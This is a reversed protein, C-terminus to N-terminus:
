QRPSAPSQGQLPARGQGSMFQPSQGQLSERRARGAKSKNWYFLGTVLAAILLVGVISGIVIGAIDGGSLKDTSNQNSGTGSDPPPPAARVTEGPSAPTPPPPANPPTSSVLQSQTIPQMTYSTVGVGPAGAQTM